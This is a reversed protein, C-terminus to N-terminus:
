GKDKLLGALGALGKHTAGSGQARGDATAGYRAADVYKMHENDHCFLCLLEWNSGDEPNNDHDHDSM